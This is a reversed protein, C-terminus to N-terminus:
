HRGDAAAAEAETESASESAAEAASEEETEAAATEGAEAPSEEAAETEPPYPSLYEAAAYVREGNVLLRSWKANRGIRQVYAGYRLKGALEGDLGPKKRLRVGEGICYVMEDCHEFRFGNVIDTGASAGSPSAKLPANGNRGAAATQGAEQETGAASLVTSRPADAKKGCAQLFLVGLCLSAAIWTLMRGCTRRGTTRGNGQQGSITRPVIRRKM